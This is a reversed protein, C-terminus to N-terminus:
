AICLAQMTQGFVVVPLILERNKLRDAALASHSLVCFLSHKLADVSVVEFQLLIVSFEPVQFFWVSQGQFEAQSTTQPLSPPSLVFLLCFFLDCGSGPNIPVVQLLHLTRRHLNSKGWSGCSLPASLAATCVPLGLRLTEARPERGCCQSKGPQQIKGLNFTYVEWNKKRGDRKMEFHPCLFNASDCTVLQSTGDERLKNLHTSPASSPSM